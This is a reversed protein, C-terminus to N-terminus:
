GKLAEGKSYSQLYNGYIKSIKVGAKKLKGQKALRQFLGGSAQQSKTQPNRPDSAFATRVEEATFPESAKEAFRLIFAEYEAKWREDAADEAARIAEYRRDMPTPEVPPSQV